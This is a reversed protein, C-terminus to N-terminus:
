NQADSVATNLATIDDQVEALAPSIEGPSHTVWCRDYGIKVRYVPPPPPIQKVSIVYPEARIADTTLIGPSKSSLYTGAKFVGNENAFIYGGAHDFATRIVDGIKEASDSYFSWSQTFAGITATDIFTGSLAAVSMLHQTIGSVTSVYTGSGNKAGQVDCTLKGAPAAGLRLMGVAPAAAWQGEALTLAILAAYTSVTTTAAGLSLANEYVADVANTAGYGHFQYVMYVPDILVPEINKCAGSAWPKLKGLMNAPGEAGGTGAYTASLLQKNNLRSENGLLAIEGFLGDRSVPGLLGEFIKTYSTTSTGTARPYPM